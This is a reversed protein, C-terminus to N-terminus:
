PRTSGVSVPLLLAQGPLILDSSLDNLARLEALNVNYQRALGWLTDGPKVSVMDPHIVTTSQGRGNARSPRRSAVSATPVAKAQKVAKSRARSVSEVVRKNAPARPTGIGKRQVRNFQTLQQQLQRMQSQLEKGTTLVKEREDRIRALEERQLEVIQRAESYRRETERLQGEMQAKLVRSAALEKRAADLEHRLAENQRQQDRIETRLADVSLGLDSMEPDFEMPELASCSTFALLMSVAFCLIQRWTMLTM